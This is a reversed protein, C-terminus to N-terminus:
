PRPKVKQELAVRAWDFPVHRHDTNPPDGVWISIKENAVTTADKPPQRPVVALVPQRQANQHM